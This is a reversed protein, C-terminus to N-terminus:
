QDRDPDKLREHVDSVVGAARMLNIVGAAFGLLFFVILGWPSTSFAYDIGWGIAAGVVVGAVLESSLRFGRALASARATANNDQREADDTEAKHGAKLTSLRQDLRGLRASLAADNSLPNGSKGDSGDRDNQTDNAM